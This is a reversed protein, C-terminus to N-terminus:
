KRLRTESKWHDLIPNAPLDPKEPETFDSLPLQTRAKPSRVRVRKPEKAAARPHSDQEKKQGVLPLMPQNVRFAEVDGGMDWEGMQKTVYTSVYYAAGLESNYPYIRAFGGGMMEWRRMWEFQDLHAVNAVLLHFHFRGGRDGYEDGRYWAIPMGSARELARLWAECKRRASFTKVDGVFTLTVFWHWHFQSLFEGWSAVLSSQV